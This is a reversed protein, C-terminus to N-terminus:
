TKGQSFRREAAWVTNQMLVQITMPGVGGPVPTIFSAKKSATEFDVDGAIRGSQESTGADVIVVGEKVMTGTIFGPKGIGSIIIDAEKLLGHANPTKRNVVSFSAGESLLWLAIPKGVLAGAGM